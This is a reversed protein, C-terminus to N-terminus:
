RQWHEPLNDEPQSCTEVLIWAFGTDIIGAAQEYQELNRPQGPDRQSLTKWLDARLLMQDFATVSRFHELIAANGRYPGIWHALVALALPAPRWYPALNIIAPPLQDAVLINLTNQL